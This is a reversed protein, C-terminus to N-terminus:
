RAASSSPLTLLRVGSYRNCVPGDAHLLAPAEYLPMGLFCVFFFM